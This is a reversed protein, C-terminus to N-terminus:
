VQNIETEGRPGAAQDATLRRKVLGLLILMIGAHMGLAYPTSQAARSLWEPSGPLGDVLGGLASLVSITNWAAHLMVSLTFIGALRWYRHERWASVLAWSTLGTTLIHLLGTGSRAATLSAWETGFQASAGLTEFLAYAAGGLIGLAFGEEPSLIHDAFLWVGIPKLLEEIIPVGIALAFLAILLTSPSTLIPALLRLLSEEDSIIQIQESLQQIAAVMGPTLGVYLLFLAFIFSFLMVEAAILLLPGATIGLGFVSWARWAPGVRLRNLALATFFAIPLGSALLNVIPLLPWGWELNKAAWYGGALSLPWLIAMASMTWRLWPRQAGQGATEMGNM